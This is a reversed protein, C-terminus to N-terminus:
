WCKALETKDGGVKNKVQTNLHLHLIDFRKKEGIFVEIHIEIQFPYKGETVMMSM